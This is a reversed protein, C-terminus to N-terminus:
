GRTDFKLIVKNLHWGYGDNVSLVIPKNFLSNEETEATSQLYRCCCCFDLALVINAYM